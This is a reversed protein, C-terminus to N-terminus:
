VLLADVCQQTSARRPKLRIETLNVRIREAPALGRRSGPSLSGPRSRGAGEGVIPLLGIPDSALQLRSRGASALRGQYRGLGKRRDPLAVTPGFAERNSRYGGPVIPLRLSNSPHRRDWGALRLVRIRRLRPRTKFYANQQNSDLVLCRL